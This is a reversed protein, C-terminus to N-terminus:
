EVGFRSFWKKISREKHTPANDHQFQQWLTLLVNIDLIYNHAKTNLIDRLQFSVTFFCTCVIVDRSVHVHKPLIIVFIM